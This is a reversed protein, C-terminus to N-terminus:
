SSVLAALRRLGARQLRRMRRGLVWRELPGFPGGPFEVEVTHRVTTAGGDVGVLEWRTVFRAGIVVREELLAPADARVVESSGVFRHALLSSYGDFRDGAELPRAPADTADLEPLWEARRPAVALHEWVAHAPADIRAEGQWTM